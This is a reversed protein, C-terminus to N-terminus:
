GGLGQFRRPRIMRRQRQREQRALAPVPRAHGRGFNGNGDGGEDAPERDTLSAENYDTYSHDSDLYYVMIGHGLLPERDSFLTM